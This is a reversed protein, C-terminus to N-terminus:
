KSTLIRYFTGPTNHRYIKVVEIQFQPFPKSKNWDSFWGTIKKELLGSLDYRTITNFFFGVQHRTNCELSHLLLKVKTKKSGSWDGVLFEKIVKHKILTDFKFRSCVTLKGTMLLKSTLRLGAIYRHVFAKM